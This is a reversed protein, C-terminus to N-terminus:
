SSTEIFPKIIAAFKEHEILFADHGYDSQVECFSVAKNLSMCARVMERSQETSYLWDSSISVFLLKATVSQFAKQLDGYQQNLDFYSLAKSLYLYSNSDFYDVFKDGQYKLYNEIEFDHDLHYGYNLKKQLKRGFKKTIAEKSIYTIHGIMRAISLGIKPPNKTDYNGSNFAEDSIIANRGVTGFALAQASLSAASAIIICKEIMTPYNIVWHLVQMGGMSPGVVAYLKHIDLQELLQKQANVIDAITIIPFDLAYKKQTKPNLSTPGSSGKCSGLINSCIVYYKNTDIAKNPGVIGEWWGESDQDDLRTVHSSGTLAHCILIVNDKNTNLEGFTEYAIDTHDLALGCELKLPSKLQCVNYNETM